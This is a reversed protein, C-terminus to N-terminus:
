NQNLKIKAFNKDTNYIETIYSIISINRVGKKTIKYGDTSKELHGLKIQEEIRKKVAKTNEFYIKYVYSDIEKQSLTKEKNNLFHGMIIVSVSRSANFPILGYLTDHMFFFLLSVIIIDKKDISRFYNCKKLIIFIIITLFLTLILSQIMGFFLVGSSFINSWIIAFLIITGVSFFFIHLFLYKKIFKKFNEM